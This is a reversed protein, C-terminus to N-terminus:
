STCSYSLNSYDDDILANAHRITFRPLKIHDENTLILPSSIATFILKNSDSKNDTEKETSKYMSRRSTYSNNVINYKKENKKLRGGREERGRQQEVRSVQQQLDALTMEM